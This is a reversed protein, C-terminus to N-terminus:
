RTDRWRLPATRVFIRNGDEERDTAQYMLWRKNRRDLLVATHRCHPPFMKYIEIPDGMDAPSKGKFTRVEMRNREFDKVMFLAFRGQGLAVPNCGGIIQPGTLVPRTEEVQETRLGSGCGLGWSVRASKAGYFVHFRGHAELAGLPFLEDGHGWVESDDWRLVPGRDQFHLGDTSHALAVSSQVSETTANVAEIAGYYLWLDEGSLIAAASFVGEEPNGQPQHTLVPNDSYKSFHLGDESVAVGLARDKPGGDTKRDGSAGVYYLFYKGKWLVAVCPSIQGYLRHDWSGPPGGRLAEGMLRWEEARPVEAILATTPRADFAHGVVALSLLWKAWMMRIGLRFAKMASWIGIWVDNM